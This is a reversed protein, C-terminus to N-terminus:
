QRAMASAINTTSVGSVLEVLRVDGGWSRVERAGVVEDETYDAGKVLVDPRLENILSLPTDEDFPIVLDVSELARLVQLRHSEPNIPRGPGKLRAISADSNVGVILRDGFNRAQELYSVHGAHLIDFCGNTFVIREGNKRWVGILNRLEQPSVSKGASGPKHWDRLAQILEYRHVPVTGVKAVVIGAAINALLLGDHTSLGTGMAAALTAIATDGAGSVDFVERAMAPVSIVRDGEVRLMGEESLTITLSDLELHERLRNAERILAEKTTVDASAVVSLESRNPTLTSAGRYRSWDKGKPDVFVPVAAQRAARIVEECVVNTLLGKAYDSLILTRASELKERVLGVVRRRIGESPPEASETDLRIMQQHGGIIRTKTTTPRTSDDVIGSVDVGAESMQDRLRVGDQDVGVLSVVSVKVGLGALNMAVNGCGGPTLSERQYRVVPVPAEPSIRNVVGWIHRDLMVDGVILVHQGDFGSDLAHQTAGYDDFHQM